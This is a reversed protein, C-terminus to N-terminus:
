EGVITEQVGIERTGKILVNKAPSRESNSNINQIEKKQIENFLIRNTEIENIM